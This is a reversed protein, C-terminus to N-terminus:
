NKKEGTIDDCDRRKKLNATIVMDEPQEEPLLQKKKEKNNSSALSQIPGLTAKTVEAETTATKNTVQTSLKAATIKYIFM